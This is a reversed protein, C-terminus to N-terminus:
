PKCNFLAIQLQKQRQKQHLRQWRTIRRANMLTITTKRVIGPYELLQTSQSWKRRLFPQFSLTIPCGSRLSRQQYQFIKHATRSSEDPRACQGPVSKDPMLKPLGGVWQYEIRQLIGVRWFDLKGKQRPVTFMSTKTVEDQQSVSGLSTHNSVREYKKLNETNGPLSCEEMRNSVEFWCWVLRKRWKQTYWHCREGPRPKM